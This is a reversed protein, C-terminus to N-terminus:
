AAGQWDFDNLPAVATPWDAGLLQLVLKGSALTDVHRFGARRYCRGPDRKRRVATPDVFSIIGDAPPEGLVFRTAALAERILDSSLHCSENRFAANYLAHPWAHDVFEPRQRLTIWVADDSPLVLVVPLGPAIFQPSGPRQRPYHRDVLRRARPDCRRMREWRM